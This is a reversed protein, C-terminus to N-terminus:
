GRASLSARYPHGPIAGSPKLPDRAGRLACLRDRRAVGLISLQASFCRSMVLCREFAKRAPESGDYALLIKKFVM